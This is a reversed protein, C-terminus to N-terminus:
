SRRHGNESDLWRRREGMSRVRCALCPMYVLGGCGPCRELPGTVDFAETESPRCSCPTARRRGAAVAGVTGRSVGVLRAIKRQSVRGEELLEQIREIKETAIM